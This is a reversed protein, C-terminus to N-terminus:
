PRQYWWQPHRCQGSCRCRGAPYDDCSWQGNRSKRKSRRRALRQINTNFQRRSFCVFSSVTPPVEKISTCHSYDRLRNLWKGMDLSQLLALTPAILRLKAGLPFAKNSYEPFSIAIASNGDSTKNDVLALHVQQYIKQWLLGLDAEAGTILAIDIYYKMIM